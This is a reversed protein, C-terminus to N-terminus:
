KRGGGKKPSVIRVIGYEDELLPLGRLVLMQLLTGRNIAHETTRARAAVVLGDIRAVMDPPFRTSLQQNTVPRVSARARAHM